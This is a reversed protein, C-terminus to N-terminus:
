ASSPMRSKQRDRPSPSTYLLCVRYEVGNREEIKQEGVPLREVQVDPIVPPQPDVTALSGDDLIRLSMIVQSQVYPSETDFSIETFVKDRPTVGATGREVVDVRIAQSSHGDATFVPIEVQGLNKPLLEFRMTFKSRLEGRDFVQSNSQRSDLIDFSRNLASVDPLSKLNEGEIYRDRICM